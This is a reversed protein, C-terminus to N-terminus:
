LRCQVVPTHMSNYLSSQLIKNLISRRRGRGEGGRGEEGRAAIGSSKDIEVGHEIVDSVSTM